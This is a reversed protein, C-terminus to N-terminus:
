KERPEPQQKTALFKMGSREMKENIADQVWRSLQEHLNDGEELYSLRGWSRVNVDAIHNNESDFIQTPYGVISWVRGVILKELARV